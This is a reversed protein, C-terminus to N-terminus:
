TRLRRSITREFVGALAESFGEVPISALSDAGYTESVLETGPGLGVGICAALGFSPARVQRIADHLDQENSHVGAVQADGIVILTRHEHHPCSEVLLRGAELVAPGDDNAHPCNRAADGPRSGLAELPIGGLNERIRDDIPDAAAKLPILQDQFGLVLTPIELRAATECLVIVGALAAHAKEFAMSGSCDCLIGFACDLKERPRPRVRRMWLADYGRGTAEFGLVRDLDLRTGSPHGSRWSPHEERPLIRRLRAELEDIQSSVRAREARHIELPQRSEIPSRLRAVHGAGGSTAGMAPFLDLLDEHSLGVECDDDDDGVDGDPRPTTADCTTCPDDSIVRELLARAVEWSGLRGPMPHESLERESFAERVLAPARSDRMAEMAYWERDADRGLYRRIVRIDDDYLAEAEPLVRPELIHLARVASIQVRREELDSAYGRALPRSLVPAVEKIYAERVEETTLTALADPLEEAYRQRDQRTRELAEAVHPSAGQPARWDLGREFAAGLYFQVFSPLEGGRDLELDHEQLARDIWAGVGWIRRAYTECRAECCGNLLQNLALRSEWGFVEDDISHYRTVAGHGLEHSVIGAVAEASQRSFAHRSISLIETDHNWSSRQALKVQIPRGALAAALARIESLSTRSRPHKM